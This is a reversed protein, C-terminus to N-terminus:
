IQRPGDQANLFGLIGEMKIRCLLCHLLKLPPVASIMFSHAWTAVLANVAEELPDRYSSVFRDLKPNFKFALLDVVLM